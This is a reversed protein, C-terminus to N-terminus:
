NIFASVLGQVSRSWLMTLGVLLSVRMMIQFIRIMSDNEVTKMRPTYSRRSGAISATHQPRWQPNQM